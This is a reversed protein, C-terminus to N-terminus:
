GQISASQGLQGTVSVVGFATQVSCSYSFQGDSFSVQVDIVRQAYPAQQIQTQLALAMANQGQPTAPQAFITQLMPTGLSLNEWWEGQWLKLRTLIDQAVADVGTLTQAPDFVPDYTTDLALYSISPTAM